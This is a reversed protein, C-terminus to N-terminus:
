IYNTDVACHTLVVADDTDNNNNSLCAHKGKRKTMISIAPIDPRDSFVHPHNALADRVVEYGNLVVVLQSGAYIRYVSGHVEGLDALISAANKAPKERNGGFRRRIASPVLFGGFNGVLPWPRPGPPINPFVHRQQYLGLVCYLCLVILLTVVSSSPDPLWSLPTM